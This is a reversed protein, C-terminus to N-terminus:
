SVTRSVLLERTRIAFPPLLCSLCLLALGVVFGFLHKALPDPYRLSGDLPSAAEQAAYPKHFADQLAPLPPRIM